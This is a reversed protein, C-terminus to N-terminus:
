IMNQLLKAIFTLTSIHLEELELNKESHVFINKNTNLRGSFLRHKIISRRKNINSV